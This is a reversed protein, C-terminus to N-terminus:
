QTSISDAYSHTNALTEIAYQLIQSLFHFEGAKKCWERGEGVVVPLIRLVGVCALDMRAGLDLEESETHLREVAISRGLVIGVGFRGDRADTSEFSREKSKM